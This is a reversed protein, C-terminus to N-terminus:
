VFVSQKSFECPKRIGSPVPQTAQSNEQLEASAEIQSKANNICSGFGSSPAKFEPLPQASWVPGPEGGALVPAPRYGRGGPAEARAGTRGQPLRQTKLWSASTGEASDPRNEM